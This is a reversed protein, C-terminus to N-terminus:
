PDDIVGLLYDNILFVLIGLLYLIKFLNRQSLIM